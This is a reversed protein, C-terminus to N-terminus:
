EGQWEPERRGYFALLKVHLSDSEQTPIEEGILGSARYEDAHPALFEQIAQAVDTDFVVSCKIAQGVDWGHILLDSGVERIYHDATVDGYSLHVKADHKASEVAKLAKDAANKWSKRPDDGVLDGDYKDGVEKITKGALLDPIWSIENIMHNLLARLDWESCPTDNSLQDNEVLMVCGDAEKLGEKFLDKADM